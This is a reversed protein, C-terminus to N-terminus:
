KEKPRWMIPVSEGMTTIASESPTSSNSAGTQVISTRRKGKGKGLGSDNKSTEDDSDRDSGESVSGARSPLERVVRSVRATEQQM